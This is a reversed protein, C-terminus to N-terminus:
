SRCQKEEVFRWKLRYSDYVYEEWRLARGSAGIPPISPSEALNNALYLLAFIADEAKGNLLEVEILLKNVM